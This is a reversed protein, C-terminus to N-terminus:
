DPGAGPGGADATGRFQAPLTSRVSLTRGGPLPLV